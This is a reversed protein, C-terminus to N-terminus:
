SKNDISNKLDNELDEFMNNMNLEKNLDATEKAIQTENMLKLDNQIMDNEVGEFGVNELMGKLHNLMVSSEDKEPSKQLGQIDKELNEMKSPYEEFDSLILKSPDNLEKAIQGLRNKIDKLNPDESRVKEPQVESKISSRLVFPKEKQDSSFRAICGKAFDRIANGLKTATETPALSTKPLTTQSIKDSVGKFFSKVAEFTKAITGKSETKQSKAEDPPM